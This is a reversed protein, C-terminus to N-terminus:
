YFLVVAFLFLLSSSFLLTILNCAHPPFSGQRAFMLVCMLVKVALSIIM